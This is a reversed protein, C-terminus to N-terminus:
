GDTVESARGASVEPSYIMQVWTKRRIEVSSGHPKYYNLDLTFTGVETFGAQLFFDKQDVPIQTWIQRQDDKTAVEIASALLKMAMDSITAPHCEPYFFLANIVAYRRTPGGLEAQGDKSRSVLEELLEARPDDENLNGDRRQVELCTYDTFDSAVYADQATGLDVVSISIWGYTLDSDPEGTDSVEQAVFFKSDQSGLHQKLIAEAPGSFKDPTSQPCMLKAFRRHQGTLTQYFMAVMGDIDSDVAGRIGTDILRPM